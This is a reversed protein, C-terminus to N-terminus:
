ILWIHKLVEHLLEEKLTFLVFLLPFNVIAIIHRSVACMVRININSKRVQKAIQLSSTKKWKNGLLLHINNKTKRHKEKKNIKKRM